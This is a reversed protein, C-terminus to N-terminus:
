SGVFINAHVHTPSKWEFELFEIALDGIDHGWIWPGEKRNLLPWSPDAERTQEATLGGRREDEAYIAEYMSRVERCVDLVTRAQFNRDRVDEPVDDTLPYSLSVYVDVPADSPALSRPRPLPVDLASEPFDLHGGEAEVRAQWEAQTETDVSWFADVLVCNQRIHKRKAQMARQKAVRKSKM